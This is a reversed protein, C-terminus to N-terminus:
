DLEEVEASDVETEDPAQEGEPEIKGFRILLAEHDEPSLKRISRVPIREAGIGGGDIVVDSFGACFQGSRSEFGIRWTSRLGFARRSLVVHYVRNGGGSVILNADDLVRYDRISMESICDIRSSEEPYGADDVTEESAACAFLSSSFLIIFCQKLINKNM